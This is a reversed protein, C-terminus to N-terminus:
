KAWLVGQTKASDVYRHIDKLSIAEISKEPNEYYSRYWLVTHQVTTKFDWAARWGLYHLAKDCNLKLLASEHPGGHSGSVDKWRVQNWHKAMETVLEGVLHNQQAPPGFNFAQGHLEPGAYLATALSLYGSLPELVHQWPRTANPNRLSVTEGKSWSCICDPVIRDEAWDGGGIVNGARGIGIRIPGDAPFYSRVYSRIALEAAGKSASYPDPGGLADTERYGWVWEVNDYCKDSTIVIATCPNRLERLADLMNVTGITNTQWTELPNEYSRRVLPQAAMHFVFDPQIKRFLEKLKEADRIDARYDNIKKDLEASIFHSPNTPINISVGFVEAGLHTLWLSLWTGKFGTHGTVIVKKDKFIEFANM